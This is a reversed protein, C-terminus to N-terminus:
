NQTETNGLKVVIVGDISQISGKDPYTKMQNLEEEHSKEGEWESLITMNPSVYNRIYAELVGESYIMDPASSVFMGPIVVGHLTESLGQIKLFEYPTDGVFIVPTETTFDDQEQIQSLLIDTKHKINENAIFIKQYGQNNQITWQFVTLGLAVVMVVKICTEWKIFMTEKELLGTMIPACIFLMSLSYVSIYYFSTNASLIGILNASIPLCVGFLILALIVKLPEKYLKRKLVLVFFVLVSVAVSMVFFFAARQDSRGLSDRVIFKLVDKMAQVTSSLLVSPKLNDSMNSIGKYSSLETNTKTLLYQLIIYYAGLSVVMQIVYYIGTKIVESIKTQKELLKIGCLIVLISATFGIYAQYAGLSFVLLVVGFANCLIPKRSMFYASAIALFAAAVFYDLSNYLLITAVSPFTAMIGAILFASVRSRVQFIVCLVGASLAVCMMGAIGGVYPLMVSGKWANLPTVFWKGQTILWDANTGVTLVSDHNFLNNVLSFLHTIMGIFFASIITYKFISNYIFDQLFEEKIQKFGIIVKKM